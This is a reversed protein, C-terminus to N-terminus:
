SVARTAVIAIALTRQRLARRYAHSRRDIAHRRLSFFRTQAGEAILRVYNLPKLARSKQKFGIFSLRLM